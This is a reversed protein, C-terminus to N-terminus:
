VKKGNVWNATSPQEGHPTWTGCGHHVNNKWQGFYTGRSYYGTGQGCFKGDVWDGDDRLFNYKRGPSYTCVGREERMNNGPATPSVGDFVVTM